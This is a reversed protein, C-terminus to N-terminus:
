NICGEFASQQDSNLWDITCSTEIPCKLTIGSLHIWTDKSYGMMKKYSDPITMNVLKDKYNTSMTEIQEPNNPDAFDLSLEGAQTVSAGTIEVAHGELVSPNRPDHIKYEGIAICGDDNLASNLLNTHSQRLQNLGCMMPIRKVVFIEGYLESNCRALETEFNSNGAETGHEDSYIGNEALCKKLFSAADMADALPPMGFRAGADPKPKRGQTHHGNVDAAVGCDSPAQRYYGNLTLWGQGTHAPSVCGQAQALTPQGYILFVALVLGIIRM